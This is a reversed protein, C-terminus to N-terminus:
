ETRGFQQDRAEITARDATCYSNVADSLTGDDDLCDPNTEHDRCGLEGFLVIPECRFGEAEICDADTACPKTCFPRSGDVSACLAATCNDFLVSQVLDNKGAEQKVRSDVLEKSPDCPSGVEPECAIAASALLLAVLTRLSNSGMGGM